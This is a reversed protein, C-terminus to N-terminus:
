GYKIRNSQSSRTEVNVILHPLDAACQLSM